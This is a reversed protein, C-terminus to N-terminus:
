GIFKGTRRRCVWCLERGPSSLPIDRARKMFHWKEMWRARIPSSPYPCSEMPGFSSLGKKARLRGFLSMGRIPNFTMQGSLIRVADKPALRWPALFSLACASCWVKESFVGDQIACIWKAGGAPNQSNLPSLVSKHTAVSNRMAFGLCTGQGVIKEVMQRLSWPQLSPAYSFFFIQFNIIWQTPEHQTANM